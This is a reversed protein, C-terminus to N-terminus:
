ASSPRRRTPLPLYGLAELNVGSQVAQIARAEDDVILINM